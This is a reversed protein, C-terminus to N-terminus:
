RGETQSDVVFTKYLNIAAKILKKQESLTKLISNVLAFTTENIEIEKLGIDEEGKKDWTLEGLQNPRIRLVEIEEKSFSIDKEVQRVLLMDIYSGQSPLIQLLAFRDNVSLKYKLM